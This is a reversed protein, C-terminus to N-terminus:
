VGADLLPRLRHLVESVSLAPLSVPAKLVHVHLGPPAWVAPDTPGFLVLCPTACAAALHSVGSDHGIFLACTALLDALQPLPLIHNAPFEDGLPRQVEAPGSVVVIEAHYDRALIRALDRWHALPWNKSASGSGPHLAIRNAVPRGTRLIVNRAAKTIGLPQLPAVFHASAPQTRPLATGTLFVQDPRLPFRRGLDNAPDPWFSLILDFGRLWGELAAPLADVSYLLSWRAENQDHIADLLGAAVALAGATRNGCLEIRALPWRQRLAECLPLTVILDGLAGGRLILISKM